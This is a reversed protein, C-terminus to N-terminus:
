YQYNNLAPHAAVKEADESVHIVAIEEDNNTSLEVHCGNGAMAPYVAVVHIASVYVPSPDYGKIVQTLKLM